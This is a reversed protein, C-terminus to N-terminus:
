PEKCQACVSCCSVYVRVDRALELGIVPYVSSHSIHDWYILQDHVASPLYLHGVPCQLPAPEIHLAQEIDTDLEWM